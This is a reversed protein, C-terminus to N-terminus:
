MVEFDLFLPSHDSIEDPFVKFDNVKIDKSVFIYDAFRNPKEYISTRTSAIRFEKILNRMGAAEIMQISETDPSLNFDGALVKPCDFMKMFRILMDSQLIRKPSDRKGEPRHTLHTNMLLLNKGGLSIEFWQLKRNHDGQGDYEGGHWDGKALLMEGSSKICVDPKFFTSIGYIGQFVDCFHGRHSSLRKSIAEYLSFHPKLGGGLYQEEKNSNYVEQFFWADADKERNLFDEIGDKM